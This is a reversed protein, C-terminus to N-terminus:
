DPPEALADCLQHNIEHVRDALGALEGSTRANRAAGRLDRLEEAGALAALGNDDLLDLVRDIRAIMRGKFFALGEEPLLGADFAPALEHFATCLKQIYVLAMGRSADGAACIGAWQLDEDRTHDDQARTVFNPDTM